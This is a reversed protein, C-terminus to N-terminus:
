KDHWTHFCHHCQKARPTRTLKGCQPCNNLFVRDKNEILIREAAKLEFMEYGDKLLALAKDDDTLWGNKRFAKERNPSNNASLKELSTFHRLALSETPTLFKSYYVFIYRATEKDM